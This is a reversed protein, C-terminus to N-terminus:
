RFHTERQLVPMPLRGNEMCALNLLVKRQGTFSSENSNLHLNLKIIRKVACQFTVLTGELLLFWNKEIM